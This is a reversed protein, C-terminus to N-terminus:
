VQALTDYKRVVAVVRGLFLLANSLLFAHGCASPALSRLVYYFFVCAFMNLLRLSYLLLYYIYAASVVWGTKKKNSIREM